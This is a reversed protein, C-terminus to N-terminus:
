TPDERVPSAARQAPKHLADRFAAPSTGEWRKFARRFNAFDTYGLRYAIEQLTFRGAKIHERALQHRVDELLERYSTGEDILRRHLTRPTMHLIRATAELSPFGPQHKLLVRRVHGAYTELTQIRELERECILVAERMALPDAARLPMDLVHDPFSFSASARRYHVPCGYLEAALAAYPPPEFPFLMADIACAGMSIEDLINKSAMSITELVPRQVAGLARREILHIHVKQSHQEVKLDVFSFRTRTFSEFLTLAQRISGSSLAAYGLSGHTQMQLRQGVLLGIAPENTLTMADLILREFLEFPFDQALDELSSETLGSRALWTAPAVGLAAVQAAVQRLYPVPMSLRGAELHLEM